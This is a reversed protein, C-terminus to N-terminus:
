RPLKTTPPLHAFSPKILKLSQTRLSSAFKHVLNLILINAIIFYTRTVVPKCSIAVFHSIQSKVIWRIIIPSAYKIFYRLAHKSSILVYLTMIFTELVNCVLIVPQIIIVCTWSRTIYKLHWRHISWLPRSRLHVLRRLVEIFCPRLSCAEIFRNTHRFVIFYEFIHKM